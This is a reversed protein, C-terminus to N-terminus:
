FPSPSNEHPPTSNSVYNEAEKVKGFSVGCTTETPGYGNFIIAESCKQVSSILKSSLAEGGVMLVKIKWLSNRFEINDMYSSLKSPTVNLVDACYKSIMRAIAYSSVLEAESVIVISLGNLLPLITEFVFIDFVVSGVSLVRTGFTFVSKQM